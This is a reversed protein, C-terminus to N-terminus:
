APIRFYRRYNLALLHQYFYLSPFGQMEILRPEYVGEETLTIAYDFQLFLPRDDENPVLLEPLRIAAASLEKFDPRQLFLSIEDSTKVLKEELDKPVFVPTEAVKFNPPEGFTLSLTRYFAEYDETRFEDNFQKRIQSIM